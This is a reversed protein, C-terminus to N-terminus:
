YSWMILGKFILGHFVSRFDRTIEAEGSKKERCKISSVGGQLNDVHEASLLAQIRRGYVSRAKGLILGSPSHVRQLLVSNPPNNRELVSGAAELVDIAKSPIIVIGDYQTAVVYGFM